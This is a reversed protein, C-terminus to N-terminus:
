FVECLDTDIIITKDFCNCDRKYSEIFLISYKEMVCTEKILQLEDDSFYAESMIFIFNSIICLEQCVKLYDIVSELFTDESPSVKFGLLKLISLKDLDENFGIPIEFQDEIQFAYEILLENIKCALESNADNLVINKLKASLSTTMKKEEFDLHFIDTVLKVNDVPKLQKFNESFTFPGEDNLISEELESVYTRLAMPDEIVLLTMRGESFEIEHEWSPNCIIM